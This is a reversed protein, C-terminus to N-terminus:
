ATASASIGATEGVRKRQMLKALGFDLVKAQGRGTIFINAPKIDRHVIGKAHAAELAEAIQIGAALLEELKMPRHEICHKLTRGELLEM